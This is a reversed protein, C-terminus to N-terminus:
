GRPYRRRRRRCRPAQFPPFLPLVRAITSSRPYTPPLLLWTFSRISSLVKGRAAASLLLLPHAKRPPQSDATPNWWHRSDWFKTHRNWKIISKRKTKADIIHKQTPSLSRFESTKSSFFFHPKGTVCAATNGCQQRQREREAQQEVNINATWHRTQKDTLTQWKIRANCHELTM